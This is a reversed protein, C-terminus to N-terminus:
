DAPLDEFKAYQERFLLRRDGIPGNRQKRILIEAVGKESTARNYVEERYIFVVVDADQEIAGSDRLDSLMPRPDDRSDCARSLQSLAIVPIDLEKALLKLARSADAIGQQRTEATSVQLLQLYDVVLLDLGTSAHLNRAKAAVQEVTLQTSDDIWMPLVELENSVTALANWGRPTLRGSRLAHLDIAAGMGHLRLGIQRRSMELSLIGVRAGNKAAALASSLALSTKGMSPRAALIILDSRQWGGLLEDMSAFGTPIGVLAGVDKRKAMQDVFDVTERVIYDLTMWSREERGSALAFLKQQTERLLNEAPENRYAGESVQAAFGILVRRIAHDRVIRAHSAINASSGVASLLEALGARGGVASLQGSQELANGVTLLDIVDGAAALSAMAAFIRRHRGDYWDNLGLLEQAKVLAAPNLLIAGLIAREADADHPQIRPTDCTLM